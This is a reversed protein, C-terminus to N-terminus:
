VLWPRTTGLLVPTWNLAHDLHHYFQRIGFKIFGYLKILSRGINEDNAAITNKHRPIMNRINM